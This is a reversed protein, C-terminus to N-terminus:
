ISESHSSDDALSTHSYESKLKNFPELDKNEVSNQNRNFQVMNRISILVVDIDPIRLYKPVNSIFNVEATKIMLMDCFYNLSLQRIFFGM